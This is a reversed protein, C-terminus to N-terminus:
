MKDFMYNIAPCSPAITCFDIVNDFSNPVIGVGVCSFVMRQVVNRCWRMGGIESQINQRIVEDM